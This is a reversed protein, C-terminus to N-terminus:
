CMKAQLKKLHMKDNIYTSKIPIQMLFPNKIGMMVMNLYLFNESKNTWFKSTTQVNQKLKQSIKSKATKSGFRFM